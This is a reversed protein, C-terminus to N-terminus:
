AAKLEEPRQALPMEIVATRRQRQRLERLLFILAVLGGAIRPDPIAAERLAERMARMHNAQALMETVNLQAVAPNKVMPGDWGARAPIYPTQPRLADKVMQPLKADVPTAEAASAALLMFCLTALVFALLAGLLLSIAKM